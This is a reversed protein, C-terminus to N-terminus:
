RVLATEVGCSRLKVRVEDFDQYDHQVLFGTPSTWEMRKGKPQQKAVQKLWQMCSAAAPVTAAIGEFLKTAAYSCYDYARAGEPFTLGMDHEAYGQVFGTTGRLTAGYVYTMVPTKSMGRPIGARLWWLAIAAKEPDSDESDMEIARLANQAVKAYIDQKPGVCDKDYLNTYGGGVPDRLLASFHQLGSCTADMHIPVGTEYSEPHGTRLAERLEWAAAFMCWPADKGWVDPHNEPEDLAREIAPWNEITWMARSHFREKDFGFCNAIHVRLWFVGRDGLAKKKSFHLTGKALDSGQPNPGGRYYWRGRKDFFMPFWLAGQQKRSVRLFGTVERVKGRWEKLSSYYGTVEYKWRQFAALEAETADAKTWTDPFPFPPKPPGARLPVGLDGGGASWVKSIADLTPQHIGFAVSQMYNLAGFVVPMKEATFSDRLRRREGKRVSRLSMAPQAARRRPSLYGGDNLNTWPDPECMMAGTDKNLIGSVDSERYDLLFEMVEPEIEYSFMLGATSRSKVLRIIGADLVAQVGFKGLQLAETETLMSDLEGKMVRDYAVNYLTRLHRKDTTANEKVQEHIRQMYVPNVTEAERIRVETEYLRGINGALVQITVPKNRTVAGVCQAICERLAIVAAVDTPVGRLWNKFKGGVGRTKVALADDLSQKVQTYARAVFKQARPLNVDGASAECRLAELREAAATSDSEIEYQLQQDRLTM